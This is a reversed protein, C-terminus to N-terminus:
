PVVHRNRRHPTQPQPRGSSHPSPVPANHWPADKLPGALSGVVQTKPLLPETPPAAGRDRRTNSPPGRYHVRSGSTSPIITAEPSDHLLPTEAPPTPEPRRIDVLWRKFDRAPFLEYLTPLEMRSIFDGTDIRPRLWTCRSAKCQLMLCYFLVLLLFLLLSTGALTIALTVWFGTGEYHRFTYKAAEMVRHSDDLQGLLMEWAKTDTPLALSGSVNVQTRDFVKALMLPGYTPKFGHEDIILETANAVFATREHTIPLVHPKEVPRRSPDQYFASIAGYPARILVGAHTNRVEPTPAEATVVIDAACERNVECHIGCKPDLLLPLCPYDKSPVLATLPCLSIAGATVCDAARIPSLVSDARLIAIPPLRARHVLVRQHPPQDFAEDRSPLDRGHFGVNHISYKLQADALKPVPVEVIFGFRFGQFDLRVPYGKAFAYFLHPEQALITSRLHGDKHILEKLRDAGLLTPSVRGTQTMEVIAEMQATLYNRYSQAMLVLQVEEVGLISLCRVSEIIDYVHEFGEATLVTLDKMHGIDAELGRRLTELRPPISSMEHDLASVRIATTATVATGMLIGAGILFPLFAFRKNRSLPLDSRTQNSTSTADRQARTEVTPVPEPSIYSCMLHHRQCVEKLLQINIAPDMADQYRDRIEGLLNDTVAEVARTHPCKVRAKKPDLLEECQAKHGPDEIETCASAMLPHRLAVPLWHPAVMEVVFSMWVTTPNLLVVGEPVIASGIGLNVHAGLRLQGQALTQQLPTTPVM